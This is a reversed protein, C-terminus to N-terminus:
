LNTKRNRLSVQVDINHSANANSSPASLSIRIGKITKLDGLPMALTNGNADLYTFLNVTAAYHYNSIITYTTLSSPITVGIPPNATMRTVDAYLVTKNANLYYRIQSVYTDAPAFYAYVTLETSSASVVDTSGRLVTAVRQTQVAMEGFNTADKQLSFYRSFSSSFFGYMTIAVLVVMIMVM